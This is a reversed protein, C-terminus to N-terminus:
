TQEYEREGILLVQNQNMVTQALSVASNYVIRSGYNRKALITCSKQM